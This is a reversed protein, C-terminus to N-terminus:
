SAAKNKIRDFDLMITHSRVKELHGVNVYYNSGIKCILNLYELTETMMDPDYVDPIMWENDTLQCQYKLILNNNLYIEIKGNVVDVDVIDYDAKDELSDTMDDGGNLLSQLWDSVEGKCIYKGPKDINKLTEHLCLYYEDTYNNM